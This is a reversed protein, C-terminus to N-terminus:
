GTIVPLGSICNVPIVVPVVVIYTDANPPASSDRKLQAFPISQWPATTNNVIHYSIDIIYSDPSVTFHKEVSVGNPTDKATLVITTPSTTADYTPREAVFVARGNTDIGDPGVLGSQMVYTREENRELLMLPTNPDEIRAPYKILSTEVIDGGRLDVVVNLVANSIVIFNNRNSAKSAVNDEVSLAPLVTPVDDSDAPADRVVPADSAVSVTSQTSTASDDFTDAIRSRDDLTNVVRQEKFASWETLLMFSLAAAAAILLYRQIDM